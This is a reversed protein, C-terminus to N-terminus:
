AAQEVEGQDNTENQDDDAVEKTIRDWYQQGAADLVQNADDIMQQNVLVFSASGRWALLYPFVDSTVYIDMNALTDAQRTLSTAEILEHYRQSRETVGKATLRQDALVMLVHPMVGRRLLTKVQRLSIKLQKAM